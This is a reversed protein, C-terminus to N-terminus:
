PQWSLFSYDDPSNTLNVSNTGDINVVFVDCKGGSTCDGLYAIKKKDPSPSIEGFRGGSLLVTENSGDLNIKSISTGASGGNRRMFVISNDDLWFEASANKLLIRQGTGDVNVLGIDSQSPSCSCYIIKSSDPSWVPAFDALPGSTIRHIETGDLKMVYLRQGRNSRAFVIKTGSPSVQFFDASGIDINKLELNDLNLILLEDDASFPNNLRTVLLNRGDPLWTNILYNGEFLQSEGSGDLNLQYTGEVTSYVMISGDPSVAFSGGSDSLVQEGSGDGNIRSIGSDTGLYIFEGVVQFFFNDYTSDPVSALLISESGNVSLSHIELPDFSKFDKKIFLLKGSGGGLATPTPTPTSTVTPTLTATPSSTPKLTSTATSTHTPSPTHTSPQTTKTATPRPTQSATLISPSCAALLFTIVVLIQIKVELDTKSTEKHGLM